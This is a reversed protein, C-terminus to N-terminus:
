FNRYMRMVSIKLAHRFIVGEHSNATVRLSYRLESKNKQKCSNTFRLTVSSPLIYLSRHFARAHACARPLPNTGLYEREQITFKELIQAAPGVHQALLSNSNAAKSNSSEIPTCRISTLDGVHCILVFFYLSARLVTRSPTYLAVNQFRRGWPHQLVAFSLTFKRLCSEVLEVHQTLRM